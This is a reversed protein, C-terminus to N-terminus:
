SDALLQDLQKRMLKEDFAGLKQMAISSDATLLFTTPTLRVDGFAKAADGMPDLAITYPLERDKTMAIVHEARDHQMAIAIIRVGKAAYDAHLAKLHPIEKICGPCDTAWFTILVPKGKLSAISFQEGTITNITINPATNLSCGNLALMSTFGLLLAIFLHTGKNNEKM